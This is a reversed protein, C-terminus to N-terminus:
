ADGDKVSASQGCSCEYDVGYDAELYALCGGQHPKGVYMGGPHRFVSTIWTAGDYEHVFLVRTATYAWINHCDQAGYGGDYRYDLLPRAVGWSLPVGLLAAPIAREGEEGEEGEESDWSDDDEIVIAEIEEGDARKEISEAFTLPEIM